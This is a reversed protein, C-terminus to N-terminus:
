PELRPGAECEEIPPMSLKRENSVYQNITALKM